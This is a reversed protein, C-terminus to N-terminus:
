ATPKALCRCYKLGSFDFVEEVEYRKGDLLIENATTVATGAPLIVHEDGFKVTSFEKSSAFTINERDCFYTGLTQRVATSKMGSASVQSTFGEVTCTYYARRLTVVTSYPVGAIDQSSRAVLYIQTDIRVVKYIDPLPEAPDTLLNRLKNGFERDSIFRDGAMFAGRTVNEVWATGTWGAVPTRRFRNAAHRLSM